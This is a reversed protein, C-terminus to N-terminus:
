VLEAKLFKPFGTRGTETVIRYQGGLEIQDFAPGSKYPQYRQNSFVSICRREGTAVDTFYCYLNASKGWARDDLRGVWEGDPAKPLYTKLVEFSPHNFLGKIEQRTM